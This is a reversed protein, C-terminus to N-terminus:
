FTFDAVRTSRHDVPSAAYETYGVRDRVQASAKGGSGITGSRKSETARIQISEQMGSFGEGPM